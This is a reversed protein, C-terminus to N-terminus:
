MPEEIQTSNAVFIFEGRFHRSFVVTSAHDNLDIDAFCETIIIVPLPQRGYYFWTINRKVYSPCPEGSLGGLGASRRVNYM